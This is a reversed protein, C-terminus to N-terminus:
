GDHPGGPAARSLAPHQQMRWQLDAMAHMLAKPDRSVNCRIYRHRLSRSDLYALEDPPLDDEVWYWERGAHHEAWDIGDIKWLREGQGFPRGVIPALEAPEMGCMRALREQQEPHMVGSCCWMTLWRVEFTALAWRLFDAAGPAAAGQPNALWWAKPANQPFMLLTDDVDLYLVPSGSM